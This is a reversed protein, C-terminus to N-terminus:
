KPNRMVWEDPSRRKGKEVKAKCCVLEKADGAKAYNERPVFGQCRCYTAPREDWVTCAEGGGKTHSTRAHGCDACIPNAM